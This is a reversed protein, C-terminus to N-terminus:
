LRQHLGVRRPLLDAVRLVLQQRRVVQRRPRLPELRLRHRPDVPRVLAHELLAVRDVEVVQQHPDRDHQAVVRVDGLPQVDAEAVQQDVLVLVRVVRLVPDRPRQRLRV